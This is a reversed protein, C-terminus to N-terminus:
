RGAGKQQNGYGSGIARSELFGEVSERYILYYPKSSGKQSADYGNLEGSYLHNIVGERSMGLVKSAEGTTWWEKSALYALHGPLDIM